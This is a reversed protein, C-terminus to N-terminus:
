CYAIDSCVTRPHDRADRPGLVDVLYAGDHPPRGDLPTVEVRQAGPAVPAHAGADRGLVLVDDDVEAAHVSDATEVQLVAEGDDFGAHGLTLQGVLQAVGVPHEVDGGGAGVAGHDAVRQLAAVAGDAGADVVQGADLGHEGVAAEDAGAAQVLPAAVAAVDG